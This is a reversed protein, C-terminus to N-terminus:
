KHTSGMKNGMKGGNMNSMNNGGSQMPPTHKMMENADIFGWHEVMKGDKVKIVDSGLMDVKTGPPMGMSADTTTGTMRAMSFIYDGNAADTKVDFKLDKIHNHMDALMHKVSDGGKVDQGNPGQHDVADDAILSNIVSSDGTEIAKMVKRNNALNSDNKANDSTSATTSSTGTDKCSIMFFLMATAATFLLKKM